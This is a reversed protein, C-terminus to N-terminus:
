SPSVVQSRRGRYCQEVHGGVEFGKSDFEEIRVVPGDGIATLVLAVLADREFEGRASEERMSRSCSPCISSSNISSIASEIAPLSRRLRVPLSESSPDGVSRVLRDFKTEVIEVQQDNRSQHDHVM